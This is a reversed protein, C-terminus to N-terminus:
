GLPFLHTNAVYVRDNGSPNLAIAKVAEVYARHLAALREHDALSAAFVIFGFTGEAAASIRESATRAAWARAARQAEPALLAVPPYPHQEWRSGECHVLGAEAHLGLCRQEDEAGLGV